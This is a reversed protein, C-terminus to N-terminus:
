GRRREYCMDEVRGGSMAVLGTMTSYKRARYACTYIAISMAMTQVLPLTYIPLGWGTVHHRARSGM